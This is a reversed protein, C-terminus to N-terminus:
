DFYNPITTKESYEDPIPTDFGKKYPLLGSWIDLDQDETNDKSFGERIKASAQSIDIKIIAVSELEHENPKRIEEWRGKLMQNFMIEFAFMKEEYTNVTKGKGYAIVSHYNFSTHISSKTLVLADAITFAIAVENEAELHNILRSNHAGHVYIFNEYRGFNVPIIFPSNDIVFSIHCFCTQDIIENITKKDYFGRHKMRKIETKYSKM